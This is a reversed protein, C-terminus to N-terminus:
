KKDGLINNTNPFPNYGFEKQKEKLLAEQEDMTFYPIFLDFGDDDEPHNIKEMFFKDFKKRVYYFCNDKESWRATKSNRCSGVYTQGDKLDSKSIAGIFKVIYENINEIYIKGYNNKQFRWDEILEEETQNIDIKLFKLQAKSGSTLKFYDSQGGDIAVSKEKDKERCECANFDHRARSFIFNKCNYCYIGFVKM